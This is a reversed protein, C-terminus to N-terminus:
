FVVDFSELAKLDMEMFDGVLPEVDSGLAKKATDFGIKGPMTEPLYYPMTHYVQPIVGREKCEIWYRHHRALDMAWMYHDLAVVRAAGRREAEFSFFGDGTNIDLVTK